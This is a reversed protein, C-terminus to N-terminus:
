ESGVLGYGNQAGASGSDRYGRAAQVLAGIGYRVSVSGMSVPDDIQQGLWSRVQRACRPGTTTPPASPSAAKSHAAATASPHSSGCAALALTLALLAIYRM